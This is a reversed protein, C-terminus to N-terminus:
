ALRWTPWTYGTVACERSKCMQVLNECYLQRLIRKVAKRDGDGVFTSVMYIEAATYGPFQRVLRLIEERM